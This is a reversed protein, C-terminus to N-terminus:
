ILRLWEPKIRTLPLTEIWKNLETQSFSFHFKSKIFGIGNKAVLLAIKEGDLVEVNYKKADRWADLSLQASTFLFLKVLYGKEELRNRLNSLFLLSDSSLKCEKKYRKAQAIYLFPKGFCKSEVYIDIKRDRTPINLKVEEPKINKLLFPLLGGCLKEFSQSNLKCLSSWIEDIYSIRMKEEKENKRDSPSPHCVGVLINPDSEGLVFKPLVDRNNCEDIYRQLHRRVKERIREIIEETQFLTLSPDLKKIHKELVIDLTICDRRDFERIINNAIEKTKKLFESINVM